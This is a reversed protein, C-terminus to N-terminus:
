FSLYQPNIYQLRLNIVTVKTYPGENLTTSSSFEEPKEIVSFLWSSHNDIFNIFSSARSISTWGWPLLSRVGDKLDIISTDWDSSFVECTITMEQSDTININSCTVNSREFSSTFEKKITDFDNLINLPRLRSSTKDLLFTIKKSYNFNNIAYMETMLNLMIDGTKEELSSIRDNYDQLMSTVSYCENWTNYTSWLLFKCVPQLVSINEKEEKAQYFNYFAFISIAFFLLINLSMCIYNGIKLYDYLQKKEKEENELSAATDQSEVFEDFINETNIDSKSKNKLEKAM